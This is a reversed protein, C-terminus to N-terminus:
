VNTLASLLEDAGNTQGWENALTAAKSLVKHYSFRLKHTDGLV